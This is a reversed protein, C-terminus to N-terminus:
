DGNRGVTRDADNKLKACASVERLKALVQPNGCSLGMNAGEPIESLEEETYGFATAVTHEYQGTESTKMSGYRKKVEEYLDKSDM